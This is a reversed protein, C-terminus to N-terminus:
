NRLYQQLHLKKVLVKIGFSVKNLIKKDQKKDLGAFQGM